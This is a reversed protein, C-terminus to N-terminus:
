RRAIVATANSGTNCSLKLDTHIYKKPQTKVKEKPAPRLLDIKTKEKKVEDEQWSKLKVQCKSYSQTDVKTIKQIEQPSHQKQNRAQCQGRRIAKVKQAPSTKTAFDSSSDNSDPPSTLDITDSGSLM